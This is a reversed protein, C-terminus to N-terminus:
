PKLAALMREELSKLEAETQARRVLDVFYNHLDPASVDMFYLLGQLRERIGNTENM